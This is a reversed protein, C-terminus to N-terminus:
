FVMEIRIGSVFHNDIATDLDWPNVARAYPTVTVRRDAFVPMEVGFERHSLGKESCYYNDNYGVKAYFKVGYSDGSVGHDISLETYTGTIVDVDRVFTVTPNLITSV